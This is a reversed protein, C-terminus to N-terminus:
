RTLSFQHNTRTCSTRGSGIPGVSITGSFVGSSFVSGTATATGTGVFALVTDSALQEAVDYRATTYYYFDLTETLVLTLSEGVVRGLFTNQLAPPRNSDLAFQAGSLSFRLSAGAQEITARYTRVRAADPLPPCGAAAQFTLTWEGALTRTPVAPQLVFDISTGHASVRQIVETTRFGEASARFGVDGGVGYLRFSGSADTTTSKGTGTGEIVEVRANAVGLGGDRVRGSVWWTDPALVLVSRSVSRGGFIAQVGTQGERRGTARGSADVELVDTGTSRWAARDTIEERQGSSYLAFARLQVTTGPPISSPMELELRTIQGSGAGGISPSPGPATPSKDCAVMTVLVTTVSAVAVAAAMSSHVRM